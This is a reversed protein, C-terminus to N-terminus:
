RVLIQKNGDSATITGTYELLRDSLTSKGHDIHAVICFNRYREIPILAIRAEIEAPTGKGPALQRATSAASHLWRRSYPKRRGWACQMWPYRTITAASVTRFTALKRAVVVSVTSSSVLCRQSGARLSVCAGGMFIDSIASANFSCTLFITRTSTGLPSPVHLNM